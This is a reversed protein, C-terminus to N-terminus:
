YNLYYKILIDNKQKTIKDCTLNINSLIKILNNFYDKALPKNKLYIGTYLEKKSLKMNGQVAVIIIYYFKEYVIHEDIIKFNNNCLFNRLDYIHDNPGLIYKANNNKFALTLINQITIGGLGAIVCADYATDLPIDKFGDSLFYSVDYGKLNNKAKELPLIKNDTAIAKSIYKNEFAIKLLHGHDSGIDLVCKFNDNNLQPNLLSALFKIRQM